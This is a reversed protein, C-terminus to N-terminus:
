GSFCAAFFSLVDALIMMIASYGLQIEFYQQTKLYNEAMSIFVVTGMVYLLFALSRAVLIGKITSNSKLLSHSTFIKLLLYSMVIVNMIIGLSFFIMSLMGGTHLNGYNDSYASNHCVYNNCHLVKTLGWSSKVGLVDTTLWVSTFLAVM